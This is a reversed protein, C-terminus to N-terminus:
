CPFGSTSDFSWQAEQCVQAQKKLRIYADGLHYYFRGDQTGEENTDIGEQM